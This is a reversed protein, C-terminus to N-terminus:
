STDEDKGVMKKLQQTGVLLLEIEKEKDCKFNIIYGKKRLRRSYFEAQLIHSPQIKKVNKFEIFYHETLIDLYMTGVSVINGKRTTYEVALPAESQANKGESVLEAVFAKHYFKERGYLPGLQNYIRLAINGIEEGDKDIYDLVVGETPLSLTDTDTIM